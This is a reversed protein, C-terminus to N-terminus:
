IWDRALSRGIAVVSLAAAQSLSSHGLRLDAQTHILPQYRAHSFQRTQKAM